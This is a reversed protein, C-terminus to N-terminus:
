IMMGTVVTNDEYTGEARVEWLMEKKVIQEDVSITKIWVTERLVMKTSQVKLMSEKNSGIWIM